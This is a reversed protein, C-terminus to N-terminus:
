GLPFYIQQLWVQKIVMGVAKNQLKRVVWIDLCSGYHNIFRWLNPFQFLVLSLLKASDWFNVHLRMCIPGKSLWAQTIMASPYTMMLSQTLYCNKCIQSSNCLQTDMSVLFNTQFFFFQNTAQLLPFFVLDNPKQTTEM